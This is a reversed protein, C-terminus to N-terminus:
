PAFDRRVLITRINRLNTMAAHREPSGEPMAAMATEIRAALSCLERRTLRMLEATTLVQM